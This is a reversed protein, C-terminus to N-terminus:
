GFPTSRCHQLLSELPELLAQRLKILGLYELLAVLREKLEELYQLCHAEGKQLVFNAFPRERADEELDFFDDMVQFIIGFLQAMERVKPVKEMAGGGFIWGLVFSSEFFVGTKKQMMDLLPHEQKESFTLDMWQGLPAGTIGGANTTTELACQLIAFAEKELESGKLQQVGLHLQRYSESILGVAVLLAEQVNFKRHLAAKGRREDSNDMAPLDDLILSSTHAFELAILPHFNNYGPDLTHAIQFAILPRIRKAEGELAYLAAEKLKCDQISSIEEFLAREFAEKM